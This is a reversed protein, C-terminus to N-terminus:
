KTSGACADEYRRKIMKLSCIRYVEATTYVDPLARHSIDVSIHLENKLDELRHHPLDPLAKRSLPLTDIIKNKFEKGVAAFAAQLFKKDFSNINHGVVPTRGLFSVLKPLVTSIDPASYLDENEIGTIGTILPSINFGPNVLTEFIDSEVGKTYKVAAIEIIKDTRPNLGTTELDLVVFVDPRAFARFGTQMEALEDIHICHLEDGIKIVATHEGMHGVLMCPTPEDVYYGTYIIEAAPKRATALGSKIMYDNKTSDDDFSIWPEIPAIMNIGGKDVALVM